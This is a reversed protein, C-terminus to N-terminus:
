GAKDLTEQDSVVPMFGAYLGLSAGQWALFVHEQAPDIGLQLVLEVTSFRGGHGKAM